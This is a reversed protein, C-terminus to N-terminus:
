VLMGKPIREDSFSTKMGISTAFNVFGVGGLFCVVDPQDKFVKTAHREWADTAFALANSFADSDRHVIAALCDAYGAFQKDANPTPSKLLAEAEEQKREVLAKLIGCLYTSDEPGGHEVKLGGSLALALGSDGAAHAHLLYQFYGSRLTNPKLPYGSDALEYLRKVMRCARVLAGKAALYDGKAVECLAVYVYTNSLVSVVHDQSPESNLNGVKPELTDLEWQNDEEWLVIDESTYRAM